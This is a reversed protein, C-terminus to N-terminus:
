SSAGGAADWGELFPPSPAANSKRAPSRGPSSTVAVYPAVAALVLRQFEDPELLGYM